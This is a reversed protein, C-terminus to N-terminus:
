IIGHVLRSVTSPSIGLLKATTTQNLGLKLLDRVCEGYNGKVLHNPAIVFFGVKIGSPLAKTALTSITTSTITQTTKVASRIALNMVTNM